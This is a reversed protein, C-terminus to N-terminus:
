NKMTVVCLVLKCSYSHCHTQVIADDTASPQCDDVEAGQVTVVDHNLLGGGFLM